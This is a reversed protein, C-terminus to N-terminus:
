VPSEGEDLPRLSIEGAMFQEAKGQEDEVLLNGERDVGRLTCRCAPRGPIRLLIPEDKYALVSEWQSRFAESGVMPRLAILQKLIAHILENRDLVRETEQQISSAPYTMEQLQPASGELLNIGIGMILGALQTGEWRMECLIGCIKRRNLLIDNPWKVQASFGWTERLAQCISLGALPAFLNLHDFESPRPRIILSMAISSGPTMQWTRQMRGRGRTQELTTVLSLDPAGREAMELAYDNTSPVTKLFIVQGAPLDSLATQLQEQLPVSSSSTECIM